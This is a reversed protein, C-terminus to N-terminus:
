GAPPIFRLSQGVRSSRLPALPMRSAELWALQYFKAIAASQAPLRLRAAVVELQSGTRWPTWGGAEIREITRVPEGIQISLDLVCQGSAKRRRALWEGLSRCRSGDDDVENVDQM